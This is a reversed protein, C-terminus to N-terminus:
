LEEEARPPRPAGRPPAGGGGGGGGAAGESEAAAATSAGSGPGGDGGEALWGYGGYDGGWRESGHRWDSDADGVSPALLPTGAGGGDGATAGAAAETAGGGGGGGSGSSSSSGGSSSSSSGGSSGGSSRSSSSSSSGGSSGVGPMLPSAAAPLQRAVGGEGAGSGDAALAGAGAGAGGEGADLLQRRLRRDDEGLNTLTDTIYHERRRRFELYRSEDRRTLAIREFIYQLPVLRIRTHRDRPWTANLGRARLELDGPASANPTAANIGWWFLSHADDTATMDKMYANPWAGRFGLPRIEVVSSRAPMFFANFLAGGHVGILVDANAAVALDRLADRGFEHRLCSTGGWNPAGRPEQFKTCWSWVQDQNVLVRAHSDLPRTSIVVRLKSPDALEPEPPPLQARYHALIFQGTSWLPREVGLRWLYSTRCVALSRFCRVHRGDPNYPEATSLPLRASAHGLTAPPWVSFPALLFNHYPELRMGLTAVLLTSRGDVWGKSRMAYLTALTRAFFEGYSYLYSPYIVLPVTCSSFQPEQLERSEEGDTAPRVLPDPYALETGWVDAFGHYDIKVSGLAIQPLGQFAEHRPNHKNEYLVYDGHDICVKTLTQCFKAAGEVNIPGACPSPQGAAGALLLALLLAAAM